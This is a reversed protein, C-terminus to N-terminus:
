KKEIRELKVGSTILKNYTISSLFEMLKKENGGRLNNAHGIKNDLYVDVTEGSTNAYGKLEWGKWIVRGLKITTTWFPTDHNLGLDSMYKEATKEKSM